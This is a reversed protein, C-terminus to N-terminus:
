ERSELDRSTVSNRGKEDESRLGLEKDPGFFSVRSGKFVPSWRRAWPPSMRGWEVQVYVPGKGM